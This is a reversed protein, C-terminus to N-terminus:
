EGAMRERCKEIGLKFESAARPYSGQKQYILGLEYHTRCPDPNLALAEKLLREAEQFSGQRALVMGKGTKPSSARPNLALAEDFFRLAAAYDGAALQRYGEKAKFEWAATGGDSAGFVSSALVLLLTLLVPLVRFKRKGHAM